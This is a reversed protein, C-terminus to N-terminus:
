ALGASEFREVFEHSERRTRWFSISKLALESEPNAAMVACFLDITAQTLKRAHNFSGFAFDNAELGQAPTPLIM